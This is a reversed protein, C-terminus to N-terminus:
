KRKRASTARKMMTTTTPTTPKVSARSTSQMIPMPTPQRSPMSVTRRPSSGNSPMIPMPTPQRPPLPVTGKPASGTPPKSPLKTTGRPAGTPPKPVAPGLIGDRIETGKRPGPTVVSAAGPLKLSAGARIKNPNAIGNAKALAAVTTGNKRAIASLTDGKKITYAM